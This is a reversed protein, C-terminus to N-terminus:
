PELGHVYRMLWDFITIDCHVAIDIDELDDADHEKLYKEFYKM